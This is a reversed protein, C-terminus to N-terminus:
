SCGSTRRGAEETAHDAAVSRRDGTSRAVWLLASSMILTPVSTMIALGALIDVSEGESLVALIASAACVSTAVLLGWGAWKPTWISLLVLPLTVVFGSGVGVWASLPEGQRFVFLADAAVLWHWFGLPIGVLLVAWRTARTV